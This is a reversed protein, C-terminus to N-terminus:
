WGRGEFAVGGTERVDNAYALELSLDRGHIPKLALDGGFKWHTDGFGYAFYGGLTAYKTVKDNTALGAGLRFGEYNNFAMLQDLRLDVPGLPLKGTALAALFKLKRDFHEQEGISDMTAYTRLGKGGLSDTRLGEWFAPDKRIGLPDVVVEPGRVERRPIDPDLEIDKLYTRGEGYVTKGNVSVSGLFIFSNLQVPF